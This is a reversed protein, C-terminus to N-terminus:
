NVTSAPQAQPVIGTAAEREAKDEKLHLTRNKLYKENFADFEKHLVDAPIGGGAEAVTHLLQHLAAETVDVSEETRGSVGGARIIEQALTAVSVILFADALPWSFRAAIDKQAAQQLQDSERSFKVKEYKIGADRAADRESHGEKKAM